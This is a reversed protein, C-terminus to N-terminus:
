KQDGQLQQEGFLSIRISSVNQSLKALLDRWYGPGQASAKEEEQAPLPHPIELVSASVADLGELNLTTTKIQGAVPLVVRSQAASTIMIYRRTSVRNKMMRHIVIPETGFVDNMGRFQFHAAQGRHIFIKIDLDVIHRCAACLCVNSTALHQKTRDFNHFINVITHGMADPVITSVDAILLAADGELKLLELESSAAEIIANLLEFIIYQAHGMAFRNLSMFRTYGSIDPLVFLTDRTNPSHNMSAHSASVISSRADLRLEEARATRRFFVLLVLFTIAILAVVIWLALMHSQMGEMM